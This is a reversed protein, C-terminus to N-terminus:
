KPTVLVFPVHIVVSGSSAKFTWKRAAALVAQEFEADKPLTSESIKVAAVKGDAGITIELVLKGELGPHSKLARQYVAKIDDRHIYHLLDERDISGAAPKSQVIIKHKAVFPDAAPAAEDATVPVEMSHYAGSYEEGGGGYDNGLASGKAVGGLVGGITGGTVGGRAYRRVGEPVEVPVQVTEAPGGSTTRTTDVVVLATYASMLHHALALRTIESKYEPKDGRIQQRTLEAIRARAWVTAVQPRSPERAPLTVPVQFAVDAGAQKGHVTITAAGPTQYHGSLVLPQGVFLDPIAAPVVDSVALGHWDIRVDTLLPRAIRQYFRGVAATTDEDPRVVQVAGRGMRAMEELLYRNVASGVGFSFLRSEGIRKAVAALVEDENGVYGDTVFVVIRL